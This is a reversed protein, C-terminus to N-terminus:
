KKMAKRAQALLQRAKAGARKSLTIKAVQEMAKAVEAPNQGVIKEAIAVAAQCAEEKLSKNSFYGTVMELSGADPLTALASLALRHEEEREVLPLVQKMAAVKEGVAKAQMPILRVAGRLALIRTKRDKTSKALAMVDPLADASPWQCLLSVAAAKVEANAEKAASRVADLAKPGGATRLIRLLALKPETPAKGLAGCLADICAAPTVTAGLTVSDNEGVTKAFSAGDVSYEIRMSKRTGHVPDGFNNNSAEITTRGRRVMQAVKKTVDAHKGDPLDGYVAKIIKVKGAAPQAERSCISALAREASKLESANKTKLLLDIIAPFEAVGAMAGLARISADRVSEDADSTAAKLLAPIASTVHRQSLMEIAMRRTAANPDSLMATLAAM